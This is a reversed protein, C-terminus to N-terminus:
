QSESPDTEHEKFGRNSWNNRPGAAEGAAIAAQIARRRKQAGSLKLKILKLRTIGMAIQERSMLQIQPVM